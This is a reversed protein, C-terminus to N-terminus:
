ETISFYKEIILQEWKRYGEVSPHLYDRKFYGDRLFVGGERKEVFLDTANVFFVEPTIAAYCELRRNVDKLIAWATNSEVLETSGRPLISNIVIPTLANHNHSDHRARIEQVIRINGAIITDASCGALLDNTGILIWWLKPHLSEPMEGNQMRYLLNAIQFLAHLLILDRSKM